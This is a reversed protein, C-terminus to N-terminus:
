KEPQHSLNLERAPFFGPPPTVVVRWATEGPAPLFSQDVGFGAVAAVRGGCELVPLLARRARPLKCDILLKKISRCPKGPLALGDGAARPRLLVQAGPPLRLFLVEPVLPGSPRRARRASFHWSTGCLETEGPLALPTPDFSAPESPEARQFLLLGYERQASVGGPLAVAGSPSAAACLELAAHRQAATLVLGPVATEAALQILRLAVSEPARLLANVPIEARGPSVRAAAFASRALQDLCAGDARLARITEGARANFNPNLEWLLPLVERRIRNRTFSLDANSPDEVHDLGHERLYDLIEARSVALLPWVIIGRRPPIGGLGHLGAGRILHLLLTEVNDDATHATAIRAAGMEGACRTLFQYRLARGAEELGLGRDRAYAAVDGGGVRCLIGRAACFDRVFAADRGSDPRLHHDFHAAAVSFRLEPGLQALLHLLCISDAGGSVAALVTGGPPLMDHARALALVSQRMM